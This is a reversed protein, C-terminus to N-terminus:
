ELGVIVRAPEIRRNTWIRIRTNTSETTSRLVNKRESTGVVVARSPTDLIGDFVPTMGPDVETGRGLTVDTEGDMFALCGIAVCSTTAWIMDNGTIAPTSGGNPDSVFLLSNPPAIKISQSMDDDM